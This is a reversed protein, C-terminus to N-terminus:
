DVGQNEFSRIREELGKYLRDNPGKRLLNYATKAFRSGPWHMVRKLIPWLRYSESRAQVWGRYLQEPSMRLPKFVVENHNYLEWNKHLLRGESEFQDFLATGPYPTLVHFTPVCIATDEVFRLSREFVTQDHDDFGFILSGELIIGAGQIKKILDTQSSVSRFKGLAAGSGTISEIGVFLGICGSKVVLDLLAPDEAFRLNAQGAWRIGLGVMGELIPRVRVPDGVINDDLFVVWKGAFGRLEALIDETPRYRFQKGFYNTVTCFSCDFPCGRSAQVPVTGLYTRGSLIERNVRPLHLEREESVPARYVKQLRDALLDELLGHWVPEVEGVVVADAHLQAEDPLVTPHMGGLVVKQGAQRFRDAIEYAKVAQHTM